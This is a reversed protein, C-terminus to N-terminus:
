RTGKLSRQVPMALSQLATTQQVVTAAVTLDRARVVNIIAGIFWTSM